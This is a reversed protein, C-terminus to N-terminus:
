VLEGAELRPHVGEGGVGIVGQGGLATSEGRVGVSGQGLVGNM